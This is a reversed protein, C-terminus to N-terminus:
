GDTNVEKAKGCYHCPDDECHACTAEAVTAGSMCSPCYYNGLQCGTFVEDCEGCVVPFHDPHHGHVPAERVLETLEALQQLIQEALDVSAAPEAM